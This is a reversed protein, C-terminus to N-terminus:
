APTALFNWIPETFTQVFRDRDYPGSGDLDFIRMGVDSLLDHVDGPGTDYLDAGGVGHEFLLIPRHRALTEAAGRLVKVEAGEVDIKLLAPVYGAELVDDLRETRVDIRQRRASSDIDHRERLGSLAPEDVVHTFSENGATDSLAARRVDVGPFRQQLMAHLEPIPEYAIHRGGPALDVVQQLVAGVNAGVDIVCSDKRLATALVVQMAHEDRVVRQALPDVSARLARVRAVLSRAQEERGLRAATAKAAGRLAARGTNMASSM